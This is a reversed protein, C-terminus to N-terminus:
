SGSRSKAIAKRAESLRRRERTREAYKLNLAPDLRTILWPVLCSRTRDNAVAVPTATLHQGIFNSVLQESEDSLKKRGEIRIGLHDRMAAAISLRLTSEGVLGDAHDGLRAGLSRSSGIHGAEGVYILEGVETGLAEGLLSRAHGDAWVALVGPASLGQDQSVLLDSFEVRRAADLLADHVPQIRKARRWLVVDIVRLLTVQGPELGADERIRELKGVTDPENFYDVFLPWWEKPENLLWGVLTDRIPFLNPRKSALLKMTRVRGVDPLGRVAEYLALAIADENPDHEWIPVTRDPLQGVLGTFGDNEFLAEIARGSLPVSLTGVAAVDNADFCDVAGLESYQEFLRGTFSEGSVGTWPAFYRRLDDVSLDRDRGLAVMMEAALPSATM